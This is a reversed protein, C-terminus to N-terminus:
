NTSESSLRWYFIGDSLTGFWSMLKGGTITYSRTVNSLDDLLVHSSNFTFVKSGTNNSNDLELWHLTRDELNIPSNISVPQNQGPAVTYKMRTHDHMLDPYVSLGQTVLEISRSDTDPTAVNKLVKNNRTSQELIPTNSM